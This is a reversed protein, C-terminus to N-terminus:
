FSVIPPANPPVTIRWTTAAQIGQGAETKSDGVTVIAEKLDVRGWTLGRLEADRLGSHLALMLAPYISPSRRRKAEALLALKDEDTFAKGVPPTVAPLKLANRRRLRARIVDGQEGLIRLLFGVEENISKSGADEGLRETQYKKVAEEDIAFVDNKGLLRVLHGIAYEAFTASKPQRVKYAELFGDALSQSPAFVNTAITKLEALDKELELRRNKESELAVTKRASGSSEQVRRGRFTFNYWWVASQKLEGTKADRYTPRYVAMPEPSRERFPLIVRKAPRRSLNESPSGQM